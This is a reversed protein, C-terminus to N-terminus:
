LIKNLLMIFQSGFFTQYAKSNKDANQQFKFDTGNKDTFTRSLVYRARNLFVVSYVEYDSGGLSIVNFSEISLTNFRKVLINSIRRKLGDTIEFGINCTIVM